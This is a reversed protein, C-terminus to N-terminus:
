GGSAATINPWETRSSVEEELQEANLVERMGGGRIELLVKLTDNGGKFLPGGDPSAPPLQKRYHRYVAQATDYMDPYRGGLLVCVVLRSFCRVHTGEWTARSPTNPPARSSFSALSTVEYQTFPALLLKNFPPVPLSAPMALVLSLNRGNFGWKINHFMTNPARQFFEGLNHPWNQYFILPLTCNSFYTHAQWEKATPARVTPQQVFVASGYVPDKNNESWPNHHRFHYAVKNVDLSPLSGLPNRQILAKDHVIFTGQDICTDKFEYWRISPARYVDKFKFFPPQCSEHKSHACAGVASLIVVSILAVCTLFTSRWQSIISKLQLYRRTTPLARTGAQLIPM